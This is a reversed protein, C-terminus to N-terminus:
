NNLITSELSKPLNKKRTGYVEPKDNLEIPVVEFRVLDKVLNPWEFMRVNWGKAEITPVDENTLYTGGFLGWDKPLNRKCWKHCIAESAFLPLITNTKGEFEFHYVVLPVWADEGCETKVQHFTMEGMTSIAALIM